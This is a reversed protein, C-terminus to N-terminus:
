IAVKNIAEEFEKCCFREKKQLVEWQTCCKCVCWLTNGRRQENQSKHLDDEESELSDQMPEFSTPKIEVMIWALHLKSM